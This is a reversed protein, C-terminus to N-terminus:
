QLYSLHAFYNTDIGIDRAIARIYTGSSCEIDITLEKEKENYELIDLNYITIVRPSLSVDKNKLALKYSREGNIHISSYLPPIQEIKGKYKALKEKILDFSIKGDYKNIIDGCSDDTTTQSGFKIKGIYRKDFGILYKLMRTARGTCVLMLGTANKDLTGSHGIKKIGIKKKLRLVLQSSTIGKPKDALILGENM